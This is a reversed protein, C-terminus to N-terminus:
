HNEFLCYVCHYKETIKQSQFCHINRRSELKRKGRTIRLKGEDVKGLIRKFEELDIPGSSYQPDLLSADVCAATGVGNIEFLWQLSRAASPYAGELLCAQIELYNRLTLSCVLYPISAGEYNLIGFAVDAMTCLRQFFAFIKDCEDRKQKYTLGIIGRIRDYERDFQNM